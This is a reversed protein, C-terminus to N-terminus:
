RSHFVVKIKERLFLDIHKEIEPKLQKLNEPDTVKMEIEAFSILERSVVQGLKQAILQQNKPFIGQIKLGFFHLPRRPHFLM